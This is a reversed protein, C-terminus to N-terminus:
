SARSKRRSLERNIGEQGRKMAWRHNWRFLPKLLFSLQKVGAKEVTPRFDFVAVTGEVAQEFRWSGTGVFDGRRTFAFSRPATAEWRLTYPLFGRSVIRAHRGPRPPGPDGEVALFVKGWWEPYGLTNGVLDYVEDVPADVTWRDVYEYHHRM